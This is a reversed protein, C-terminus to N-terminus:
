ELLENVGNMLKSIDAYIVIIFIDLKEIDYIIATEYRLWSLELFIYTHCNSKLKKLLSFWYYTSVFSVVVALYNM